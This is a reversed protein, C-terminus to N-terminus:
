QKRYRAMTCPKNCVPCNCIPNAETKYGTAQAWQNPHTDGIECTFRRGCNPCQTSYTWENTRVPLERSRDM